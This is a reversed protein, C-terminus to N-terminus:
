QGEEKIEEGFDQRIRFIDEIKIGKGLPKEGLYGRVQDMPGGIKGGLDSAKADDSNQHGDKQSKHHNFFQHLIDILGKPHINFCEFM